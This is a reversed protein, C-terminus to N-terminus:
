RMADDKVFINKKEFYRLNTSLNYGIYLFSDSSDLYSCEKSLHTNIIHNTVYKNTQTLFSFLLITVEAFSLIRRMTHYYYKQRRLKNLVIYFVFVFTYM